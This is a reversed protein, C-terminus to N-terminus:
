SKSHQFAEAKAQEALFARVTTRDGLPAGLALYKEFDIKAANLLNKRILEPYLLVDSWLLLAFVFLLLYQIFYNHRFLHIIM